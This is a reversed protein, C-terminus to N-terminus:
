IEKLSIKDRIIQKYREIANIIKQTWYDLLSFYQEFIKKENNILNKIENVEKNSPIIKYLKKIDHGYHINDETDEFCFICLHKHCDKCYLTLDKKHITCKNNIILLDKNNDKIHEDYIFCFACYIKRCKKCEYKIDKELSINCKSCKPITMEKLYFREFTKYFINEKKHEPNEHCQSNISFNNDNIKIDLIGNCGNESCCPYYYKSIEEEM